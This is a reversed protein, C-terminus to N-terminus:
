PTRLVPEDLAIGLWVGAHSDHAATDQAEVSKAIALVDTKEMLESLEEDGQIDAPSVRGTNLRSWNPVMFAGVSDLVTDQMSWFALCVLMM